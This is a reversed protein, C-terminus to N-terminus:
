LWNLFWWLGHFICLILVIWVLRGVLFLFIDPFIILLDIEVKAQTIVLFYLISNEEDVRDIDIIIRLHFFDLEVRNTVEQKVRVWFWGPWKSLAEGKAIVCSFLFYVQTVLSPHKLEIRRSFLFHLALLHWDRDQHWVRSWHVAMLYREGAYGFGHHGHAEHALALM